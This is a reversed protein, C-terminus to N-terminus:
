CVEDCGSVLHADPSCLHLNYLMSSNRSFCHSQFLGGSVFWSLVSDWVLITLLFALMVLLYILGSFPLMAQEDM